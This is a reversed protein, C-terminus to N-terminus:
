DRKKHQECATFYWGKGTHNGVRGPAGCEECMVTSMMEALQIAGHVYEDGGDVYFRLGGFKEKVQAAKVQKIEAPVSRLKEAGIQTAERMKEVYDRNPHDKHKEDFLTFDGDRADLVMKNHEEAYRRQDNASDIHHQILHCLRNVLEYWGDGIDIGWAIPQRTDKKGYYEFIKPYDAVLKDVLEPKM